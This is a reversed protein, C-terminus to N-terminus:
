DTVDIKQVSVPPVGGGEPSGGTGRGNGAASREAGPRQPVTTAGLLDRVAVAVDAVAGTLREVAQPDVQRLYAIGRCVPCNVCEAAARAEAEQAVRAGTGTGTGTLRTAQAVDLLRLAEDLLRRGQEPRGGNV